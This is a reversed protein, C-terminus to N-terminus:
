PMEREKTGGASSLLQARAMGELVTVQQKSVGWSGRHVEQEEKWVRSGLNTAAGM